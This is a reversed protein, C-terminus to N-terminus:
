NSPCEGPLTGAVKDDSCATCHNPYTRPSRSERLGCVPDFQQTCIEPRPDECVLLGGPPPPAEAAEVTPADGGNQACASGLLVLILACLATIKTM